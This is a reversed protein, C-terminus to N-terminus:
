WDHWNRSRDYALTKLMLLLSLGTPAEKLGQTFLEVILLSHSSASSSHESDSGEAYIQSEAEAMLNVLFAQHLADAAAAHSCWADGFEFLAVAPFRIEQASWVFNPFRKRWDKKNIKRDFDSKLIAEPFRRNRRSHVVRVIELGPHLNRGGSFDFSSLFSSFRPTNIWETKKDEKHERERKRKVAHCLRASSMTIMETDEISDISILIQIAALISYTGVAASEGIHSKL